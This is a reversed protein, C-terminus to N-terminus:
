KKAHKNIEEKLKGLEMKCKNVEGNNQRKYEELKSETLDIKALQKKVSTDQGQLLIRRVLVGNLSPDDKFHNTMYRQQIKWSMLMGWVYNGRNERGADSFGERAANLEEVIHQLCEVQMAWVQEDSYTTNATLDEQQENIFRVLEHCFRASDQCLGMSLTQIESDGYNRRLEVVRKTVSDVGFSIQHSVGNQTGVPKWTTYSKLYGSLWDFTGGLMVDGKKGGGGVLVSPLVTDFSTLVAAELGTAIQSKMQLERQRTADDTHVVPARIAHMYALADLFIDISPTNRAEYWNMFDRPSTFTLGNIELGGGSEIREKFEIFGEKFLTFSGTAGFMANELREVKDIIGQTFGERAVHGDLRAVTRLNEVEEAVDRIQEKLERVTLEVSQGEENLKERLRRVVVEWQHAKNTAQQLEAATKKNQEHIESIARTTREMDARHEAITKHLLKSLEELEVQTTATEIISETSVRAQTDTEIPPLKYVELPHAESDQKDDSNISESLEDVRTAHWSDIVFKWQGKTLRFPNTASLLRGATASSIPGGEQLPPLYPATLVGHAKGFSIYWGPKISGVTTKSHALKGCFNQPRGCFRYDDNGVRGTCANAEILVLSLKQNSDWEGSKILAEARPSPVEGDPVAESRLCALAEDDDGKHLAAFFDFPFTEDRKSAARQKHTQSM